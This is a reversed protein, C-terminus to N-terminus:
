RLCLFFFFVFSLGACLIFRIFHLMGGRIYKNLDLGPSDLPTNPDSCWCKWQVVM